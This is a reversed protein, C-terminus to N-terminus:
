APARGVLCYERGVPDTLVSWYEQTGTVRAGLAVHRDLEAADTCGFDVHGRTRDGPAARDRRQLLLRAPWGDPRRLAAFGPV